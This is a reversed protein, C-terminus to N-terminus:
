IILALIITVPADFVQDTVGGSISARVIAGFAPIAVATSVAVGASAVGRVPMTTIAISMITGLVMTFMIFVMIATM